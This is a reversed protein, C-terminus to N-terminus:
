RIGNSQREAKLKEKHDELWYVDELTIDIGVGDLSATYLGIAWYLFLALRTLTLKAVLRLCLHLEVLRQQFLELYAM